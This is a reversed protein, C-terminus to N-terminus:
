QLTLTRGPVARTRDNMASESRTERRDRASPRGAHDRDTPGVRIQRLIKGRIFPDPDRGIRHNGSVVDNPQNVRFLRAKVTRPRSDGSDSARDM